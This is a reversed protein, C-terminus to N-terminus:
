LENELSAPPRSMLDGKWMMRNKNKKMEEQLEKKEKRV